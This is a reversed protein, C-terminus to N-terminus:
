PLVSKQKGLLYDKEKRTLRDWLIRRDYKIHEIVAVTDSNVIHWEHKERYIPAGRDIWTSSSSLGIVTDKQPHANYISRRVSDFAKKGREARDRTNVVGVCTLGILGLALTTIFFMGAIHKLTPKKNM